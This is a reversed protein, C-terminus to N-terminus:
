CCDGNTKTHEWRIRRRLLRHWNVACNGTRPGPSSSELKRTDLNYVSPTFRYQHRQETPCCILSIVFAVRRKATTPTTYIPRPM